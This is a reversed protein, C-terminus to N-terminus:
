QALARNHGGTKWYISARVLFFWNSSLYCSQSTLFNPSCRGRLNSAIRSSGAKRRRSWSSLILSQEFPPRFCYKFVNTNLLKLNYMILTRVSDQIRSFEQFQGPLKGSRSFTQFISTFDQFFPLFDLTKKFTCCTSWFHFKKKHQDFRIWDRRCMMSFAKNTCKKIVYLVNIKYGQTQFFFQQKLFLRSFTKFKPYFNQENM